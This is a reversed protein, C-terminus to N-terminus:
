RRVVNQQDNGTPKKSVKLRRLKRYLNPRQIGLTKAAQPIRGHHHALVAVIYEREFRARAQRLTGIEYPKAWGDIQVESLIDALEIIDSRVSHVLARALRRLELANGHWPLAYLLQQASDSLQKARVQDRRCWEDVFLAALQVIDERRNRLPPVEIRGESLLRHLDERVRGDRVADDYDQEIAAIVRISLKIRNKQELLMADGTRLVRALREQVSGPIAALNAFFITGGAATHLLSGQGIRELARREQRDTARATRCGLLDQELAELSDPSCAVRVFPRESAATRRHIERAVRERGTGPEGSVLVHGATKAVRDVEDLVRRMAPSSSVLPAEFPDLEITRTASNV